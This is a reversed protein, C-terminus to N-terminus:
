IRQGFLISAHTLLVADEQTLSRPRGPPHYLRSRPARLHSPIRPLLLTVRTCIDILNDSLATTGSVRQRERERECGV